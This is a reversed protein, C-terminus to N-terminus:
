GERYVRSSIWSGIGFHCYYPSRAALQGSTPQLTGVILKLLTSKGAGNDGVVGMCQGKYLRFSVNRLAWYSQHYARGTLLAKLRDRPNAYLRYEKSVGDVSLVPQVSKPMQGQIYDSSM